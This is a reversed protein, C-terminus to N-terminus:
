PWPGTSNLYTFGASSGRVFVDVLRFYILVVTLRPM